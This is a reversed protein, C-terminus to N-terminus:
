IIVGAFATEVKFWCFVATVEELPGMDITYSVVSSCSRNLSVLIRSVYSYGFCVLFM